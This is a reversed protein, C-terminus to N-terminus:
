FKRPFRSNIGIDWASFHGLRAVSAIGAERNAVCIKPVLSWCVHLLSPASSMRRWSAHDAGAGFCDQWATCYHCPRKDASLRPPSPHSFHQFRRISHRPQRQNPQGSEAIRCQTRHERQQPTSYEYARLSGDNTLNTLGLLSCLYGCVCVCVIIVRPARVRLYAGEHCGPWKKKSIM